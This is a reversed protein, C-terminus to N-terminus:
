PLFHSSFRFNEPNQLHKPIIGLKLVEDYNACSDVARQNRQYISYLCINRLQMFVDESAIIGLKAAIEGSISM